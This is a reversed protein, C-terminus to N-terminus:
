LSILRLEDNGNVPNFQLGYDMTRMGNQDSKTASVIQVAPAHVMIQNGSATGLVFGLGQSTNAKMTSYFAVEQAATVDLTISGTIDRDTLVVQETTLMPVFDAKVGWDIDLGLSNYSTGGALAGTAYTCGLKIDTVNAKTVAPPVKWGTLVATANAVVTDGADVGIFEFMFKPMEGAKMSLKPKGVCGVLKHLLGDDYYYITLTKPSDTAPLYEVRNPVTLGTTEAGACGVLLAGWAPATAAAGAGAALVSFTCSKYSTTLLTQSGGFWPTVVNITASKIEIPKVSLDFVQIANAAGTPTADTGTTTEIKALVVTKKILRPM